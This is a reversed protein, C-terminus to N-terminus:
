TAVESKSLKTAPKDARQILLLVYVMLAAWRLAGIVTRMVGHERCLPALLPFAPVAFAAAAILPPIWRQEAAFLLLGSALSCLALFPVFVFQGARVSRALCRRYRGRAASRELVVSRYKRGRRIRYELWEGISGPVRREFAIAPWATVVAGHGHLASRQALEVDEAGAALKARFTGARAAYCAGSIMAAGLARGELWWLLNVLRWHIKEEVLETVPEIRAGVLALRPDRLLPEVLRALCDKDLMTDADTCVVVDTRAARAGFNIQAAKGARGPYHVVRVRLGPPSCTAALVTTGDRSGGDVVVVEIRELPYHSQAINEIKDRIWRAEDLVAVVVTIDPLDSPPANTAARRRFTLLVAYGVTLVWLASVCTLFLSCVFESRLSM